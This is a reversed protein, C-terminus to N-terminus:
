DPYRLAPMLMDRLFPENPLGAIAPRAIALIQVLAFHLRTADTLDIARAGEALAALLTEAEEVPCHGTLRVVDDVVQVTM